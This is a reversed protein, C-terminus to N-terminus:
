EDSYEGTGNIETSVEFLRNFYEDSKQQDGQQQYTLALCNYYSLKQEPTLQNVDIKDANAIIEDYYGSGFYFRIQALFIQSAYDSNNGEALIEETAQNTAELRASNDAGNDTDGKDGYDDYVTQLYQQIKDVEENSGSDISPINQGTPGKPENAKIVVLWIIGILALVGVIAAGIILIMKRNKNDQKKKEANKRNQEDFYEKPRTAKTHQIKDTTFVPTYPQASVAQTPNSVPKTATNVGSIGQEAGKVAAPNTNVSPNPKPAPGAGTKAGASIPRQSEQLESM